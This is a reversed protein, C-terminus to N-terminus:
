FYNNDGTREMRAMRPHNNRAITHSREPREIGRSKRTPHNNKPRTIRKDALHHYTKIPV